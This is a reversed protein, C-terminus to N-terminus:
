TWVALRSQPASRSPPRPWSPPGMREGAPALSDALQHGGQVGFSHLVIQRSYRAIQDKDLGHKLGDWSHAVARAMAPHSCANGNAALPPQEPPPALQEVAPPSAGTQSARLARLEAQLQANQARLRELEQQLAEPNGSM